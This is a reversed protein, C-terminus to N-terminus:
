RHPRLRFRELAQMPDPQSDKGNSYQRIALWLVQEMTRNAEAIYGRSRLDRAHEILAKFFFKKKKQRLKMHLNMATMNWTLTALV